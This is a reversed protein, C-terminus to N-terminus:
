TINQSMKINLLFNPWNLLNLEHSIEVLSVCYMFIFHETVATLRKTCPFGPFDSCTKSYKDTNVRTPPQIFKDVGPSHIFLQFIYKKARKM